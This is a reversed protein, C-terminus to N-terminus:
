NVNNAAAWEDLQRQKEAIVKDIGAQKLREIFQPYVESPDVVGGELSMKYQDYVNTLAAVENKVPTPDYTFGMAKSIIAENNFKETQDWLDVDNGEWVHALFGNGFM